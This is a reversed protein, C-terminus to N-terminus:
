VEIGCKMTKMDCVIDLVGHNLIIPHAKVIYIGTIIGLLMLILFISMYMIHFIRYKNYKKITSKKNDQQLNQDIEILHSSSNGFLPDESNISM